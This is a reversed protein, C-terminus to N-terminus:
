SCCSLSLLVGLDLVLAAPVLFHIYTDQVGVSAARHLCLSSFFCLERRLHIDFKLGVTHALMGGSPWARGKMREIFHISSLEAQTQCDPLHTRRGKELEKATM